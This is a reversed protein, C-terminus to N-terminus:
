KKDEKLPYRKMLETIYSRFVVYNADGSFGTFFSKKSESTLWSDPIRRIAWTAAPEDQRTPKDVYEALSLDIDGIDKGYNFFLVGRCVVSQGFQHSDDSNLDISLSVNGNIILATGFPNGTADKKLKGKIEVHSGVFPVLELMSTVSNLEDYNQKGIHRQFIEKAKDPEKNELSTIFRLFPMLNVSNALGLFETNFDEKCRESPISLRICDPQDKPSPLTKFIKKVEVEVMYLRPPRPYCDDYYGDVPPNRISDKTLRNFCLRGRLLLYGDSVIYEGQQSFTVGQRSLVVAQDCGSIVVDDNGNIAFKQANKVREDKSIGFIEVNKGIFPALQWLYKVDRIAVTPRSMMKDFANNLAEQEVYSDVVSQLKRVQSQLALQKLEPILLVAVLVTVILLLIINLAFAMSIKHKM